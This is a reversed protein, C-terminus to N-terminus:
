PRRAKFPLSNFLQEFNARTKGSMARLIKARERSYYWAAITKEFSSNSPLSLLARIQQMDQGEVLNQLIRNKAKGSSLLRFRSRAEEEGFHGQATRLSDRGAPDNDWLACYPVRWAIMLSIHYEISQANVSPLIAIERNARFLDLLYFDFIGEVIITPKSGFDLALPRIQLADILPQYASRRAIAGGHEHLPVLQVNGNGDKEAIRITNIPIVQPDLLHHSHTCYIVKNRESLQRLKKALKEQAAAHLYSGPEDLLYIAEVDSGAVVKPNFELKMVFNFFWFFGKSRDRVYFYHEDGMKDKEIVDLKLFARKSPAPEDEYDIQIKLADTDDLRFNQWESTLRENLM